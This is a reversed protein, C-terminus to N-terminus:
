IFLQEQVPIYLNQHCHPCSAIHVCQHHTYDDPYSNTLKLDDYERYPSYPEWVDDLRGHDDLLHHCFPCTAKLTTLGNCIPCLYPMEKM